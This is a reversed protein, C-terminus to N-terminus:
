VLISKRRPRVCLERHDAQSRDTRTAILRACQVTGPARIPRRGSPESHTNTVRGPRGVHTTQALWAADFGSMLGLILLVMAFKRGFM